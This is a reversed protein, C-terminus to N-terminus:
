KLLASIFRQLMAAAEARTATGSPVLTGNPLGSIIGSDVTWAVAEQAWPSIADRDSFGTLSDRGGTSMDLLQAYRFLMVALQERTISDNPGFYGDGYGSVIGTEVAWTIGPTYWADNAADLFVSETKQAQGGELHFLVTALMGRSLPLDPAFSSPSVGTFLGRGAAFGVASSYWASAMVDEFFVM